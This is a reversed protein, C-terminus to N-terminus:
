FRRHISSRKGTSAQQCRLEEAWFEEVQDKQFRVGIMPDNPYSQGCGCEYEFYEVTGIRGKYSRDFTEDRSDTVRVRDGIKFPAGDVDIYIPKPAMADWFCWKQVRCASQWSRAKRTAYKFIGAKPKFPAPKSKGGAM